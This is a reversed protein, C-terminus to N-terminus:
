KKSETLLKIRADIQADTLTEAIFPAGDKGTVEHKEILLSKNKALLELAKLKDFTGFSLSRSSSSSSGRSNSSESEGETMSLNRLIAASDEDLQDSDKLTFRKGDWDAVQKLNSFAIKAIERLIRKGTIDIDDYRENLKSSIAARVSPIQLLQYGQEMATHESYGARIAAKTANYDILYELVFLQQKPTFAKETKEKKKGAIKKKM